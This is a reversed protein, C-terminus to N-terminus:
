VVENSCVYQNTTLPNNGGKENEKEEKKSKRKKNEEERKGKERKKLSVYIYIYINHKKSWADYYLIIEEVLKLACNLLLM